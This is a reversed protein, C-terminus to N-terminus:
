RSCRPRPRCARVRAVAALLAASAALTAFTPEPLAVSAVPAPHLGLAIEDRRANASHTQGAFDIASIQASELGASFALRLVAEDGRLDSPPGFQIPLSLDDTALPPREARLEYLAGVGLVGVVGLAAVVLWRM